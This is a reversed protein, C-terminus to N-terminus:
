QNLVKRHAKLIEDGFFSLICGITILLVSLWFVPIEYRSSYLTVWAFILLSFGSHLILSGAKQIRLNKESNINSGSLLRVLLFLQYISSSLTAFGVSYKGGYIAFVFMSTFIILIVVLLSLRYSSKKELCLVLLVVLLIAPIVALFNMNKIYNLYEYSEEYNPNLRSQYWIYLSAYLFLLAFITFVAVTLFILNNKTRAM